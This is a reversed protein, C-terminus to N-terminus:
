VKNYILHQQIKQGLPCFARCRVEDAEDHQQEAAPLRPLPQLDDIEYLAAIAVHHATEEEAYTEDESLIDIAIASQHGSVIGVNPRGQEKADDHKEERFVESGIHVPTRGEGLEQREGHRGDESEQHGVIDAAPNVFSLVPEFLEQNLGAVMREVDKDEVDNRILRDAQQLDPVITEVASLNATVHHNVVM